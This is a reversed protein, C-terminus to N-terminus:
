RKKEANGEGRTSRSNTQGKKEVAHHIRRKEAISLFSGKQARIGFSTRVGEEVRLDPLGRVCSQEERRPRFFELVSKEKGKPFDAGV